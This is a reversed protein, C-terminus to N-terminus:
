DDLVFKKAATIFDKNSIPEASYEVFSHEKAINKAIDHAHSINIAKVFTVVELYDAFRALRPKHIERQLTIKYIEM